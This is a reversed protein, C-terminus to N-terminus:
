FAFLLYRVNFEIGDIPKLSRLFVYLATPVSNIAKLDNGLTCYFFLYYILLTNHDNYCYYLLNHIFHM